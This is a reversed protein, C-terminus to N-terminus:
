IIKSQLHKGKWEITELMIGLNGVLNNPNMKMTNTTGKCPLPIDLGIKKSNPSIICMSKLYTLIHSQKM